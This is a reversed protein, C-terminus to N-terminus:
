CIHTGYVVPGGPSDMRANTNKRFYDNFYSTELTLSMEGKATVQYVVAQSIICRYRLLISRHKEIKGCAPTM